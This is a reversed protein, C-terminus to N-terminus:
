AEDVAAHMLPRLTRTAAALRGPLDAMFVFSPRLIM